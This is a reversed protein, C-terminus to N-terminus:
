WHILYREKKRALTLSRWCAVELKCFRVPRGRGDVLVWSRGGVESESEVMVSRGRGGGGGVDGGVDVAESELVFVRIMGVVSWDM